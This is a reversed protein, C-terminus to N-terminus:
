GGLPTFQIRMNEYGDYYTIKWYHGKRVPFTITTFDMWYHAATSGEAVKTTPNPSADTYGRVRNYLASSSTMEVTVIGDTAAQYATNVTFSTSHPGMVSATTESRLAYPVSTFQKRPSLTTVGVTVQLWLNDYSVPIPNGGSGLKVVYVGDGNPTVVQADSWVNSGGAATQFLEFTMNVPFTVPVGSKVLRGMFSVADPVGALAPATMLFILTAALAITRKTMM